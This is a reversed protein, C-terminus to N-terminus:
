FKRRYLLSESQGIVESLQDIYPAREGDILVAM